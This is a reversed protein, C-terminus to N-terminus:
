VERNTPLTLHTYSVPGYIASVKAAYMNADNYRGVVTRHRDRNRKQRNYATVVRIGSLNEQLDAIVLAIRNRAALYGRDSASRFWLTMIALPPILVFLTIAAMRGNTWFMMSGAFLMTLVQITLSVFSEQLLSQLAEIDSTMRTMVVGDAERTYFDLGFRQLHTFVAVRLRYLLREGVRGAWRTRLANAVTALVLGAIYLAACVQVVRFDGVKIGHDFGYQVLKPGIQQGFTELVVLVFIGAVAPKVLGFLLRFSLERRWPRASVSFEVDNDVPTPEQDLFRKAGAQMEEPIGGFGGAGKTAGTFGMGGIMAM